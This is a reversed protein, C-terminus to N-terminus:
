NGDDNSYYVTRMIQYAAHKANDANGCFMVNIGYVVQLQSVFYKMWNATVKIKAQVSKPLSSNLPFNIVDDYSFECLIYKYKFDQMRLLEKTFRAQCMNAAIEATSAKREICLISEYGEISYDGTKLAKEVSGYTHDDEGYEWGTQERSDQVIVFKDKLKKAM